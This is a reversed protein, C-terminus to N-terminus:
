RTHSMQAQDLRSRIGGAVEAHVVAIAKSADVVLSHGPRRDAQALFSRRVRDHFALDLSEFRGEDNGENALRRRSRDLGIRPDVDLLITIDPWIDDVLRAHLDLILDEPLGRGAGQYALTSGIFRDCVVIKGAALAPQIVRRVHQVRAAVMLLLEANQEWVQGSAALLLARLQLGEPTGGPERTALVDHGDQGLMAALNQVLGGKGAGDGGEVAVFYGQRPAM